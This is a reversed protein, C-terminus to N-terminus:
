RKKKKNSLTNEKALKRTERKRKNASDNDSNSTRVVKVENNWIFYWGCYHTLYDIRGWSRIGIIASKPSQITKNSYDIKAIKSILRLDKNEDHKVMKCCIKNNINYQNFLKTTNNIISGFM